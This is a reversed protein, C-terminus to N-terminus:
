RKNGGSCTKLKAEVQKRLKDGMFEGRFYDIRAAISIKDALARAIRGRSKKDAQAIFPHQFLYGYKPPKSKTTMHRFFAEEAGLVQVTSAPFESLRKLSGAQRLLRAGIIPGAIASINRCHENMASELYRKQSERLTYVNKLEKSLRIVPDLDKKRFDGGMSEDRKIDLFNLLQERSKESVLEAFKSHDSIRRSFEPLYYSYWERLRKAMINTVKELEELCNVAQMIMIDRSVSKGIIHKTIREDALKVKEFVNQEKLAETIRSLKEIDQEDRVRELGADDAKFGIFVFDGKKHRSVLKNEEKIFEGRGLKESNGTIDNESFMISDIMHFKQDFVFSGASNSYLFLRAM